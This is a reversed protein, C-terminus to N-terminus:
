LVFIHLFHLRKWSNGLYIFICIYTLNTERCWLVIPLIIFTRGWLVKLSSQFYTSSLYLMNLIRTYFTIEVTVDNHIFLTMFFTKIQHINNQLLIDINESPKEFPFCGTFSEELVSKLIIHINIHFFIHQFRVKASRRELSGFAHYLSFINGNAQLIASTQTILTVDCIFLLYVIIVLILILSIPM